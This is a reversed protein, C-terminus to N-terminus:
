ETLRSSAWPEQGPGSMVNVYLKRARVIAGPGRPLRGLSSDKEGKCSHPSQADSLKFQESIDCPGATAGAPVAQLGTQGPSPITGGLRPSLSTLAPSMCACSSPLPARRRWPPWSTQLASESDQSQTLWTVQSLLTCVPSGLARHCPQRCPLSPLRSCDSGKNMRENM